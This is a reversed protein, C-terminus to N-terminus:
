DNLSVEINSPIMKIDNENFCWYNGNHGHGKGNLRKPLRCLKIRNHIQSLSATIIDGEVIGLLKDFDKVRKVEYRPM